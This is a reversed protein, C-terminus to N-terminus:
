EDPWHGGFYREIARRLVALLQEIHVPQDLVSFANLKLAEALVFNDIRPDFYRNRVVMVAPPRQDIRQIVRLLKLGGPLREARPPEDRDAGLYMDLVAVHIPTAEILDVAEDSSTVRFSRVGQPELLEPLQAAWTEGRDTLLVNLRRDGHAGPREHRPEPGEARERAARDATRDPRLPGHRDALPDGRGTRDSPKHQAM